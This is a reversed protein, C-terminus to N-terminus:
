SKAIETVLDEIGKERSESLRGRSHDLSGPQSPDVSQKGRLKLGKGVQM